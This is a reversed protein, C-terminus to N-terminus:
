KKSKPFGYKKRYFVDAANIHYQSGIRKWEFYNKKHIWNYVTSLSVSLEASVELPTLFAKKM